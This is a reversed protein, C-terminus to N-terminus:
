GFFLIYCTTKATNHMTQPLLPVSVKCSAGLSGCLQILDSILQHATEYKTLDDELTRESVGLSLAPSSPEQMAAIGDGRPQSNDHWSHPLAAPQEEKGGDWQRPSQRHRLRAYPVTPHAVHKVHHRSMSESLRYRARVLSPVHSAEIANVLAAQFQGILCRQLARQPLPEIHALLGVARIRILVVETITKRQPVRPHEAPFYDRLSARVKPSKIFM